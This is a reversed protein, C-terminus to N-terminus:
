SKKKDPIWLNKDYLSPCNKHKQTNLTSNGNYFWQCEPNLHAAFLYMGFISSNESYNIFGALLQTFSCVHWAIKSNKEALFKKM